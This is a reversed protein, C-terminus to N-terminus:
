SDLFDFLSMQRTQPSERVLTQERQVLHEPLESLFESPEKGTVFILEERARTMGVYFLRREEQIDVPAGDKRKILLPFAGKEMGPIIVAPFELGKAAHLTMLSVADATYYRGGCRKLDGEKGLLINELLEEMTKHFIAMSLLRSLPEDRSLGREEMWMKILDVPKKKSVLPRYKEQLSQFDDEARAKKFFETEGETEEERSYLSRFFAVAERVSEEELFSGRGTVTYPIGEKKLYEEMAEAQRNTRCLVAIDSFSRVTRGEAAGQEQADLMDIGGVMRNIERATFIGESRKGSAKVIRMRSGPGAMSVLSRKEGPNNSIVAAAGETITGSSRYNKHLSIVEAGPEDELFRSFCAPDSGRFGYISQDPDGIVFLEKGYRNWQCILEYQLPSIDQFEDVLLYTFRSCFSRAAEQDELLLCLAEILLDDFDFLGRSTLSEEYRSVANWLGTGPQLRCTDEEEKQSEKGFVLVRKIKERSILNLFETVSLKEKEEQLIEEALKELELPDALTYSIGAYKLLEGCISHFTGTQIRAFARRHPMEKQLRERLERAAQNTFTVATIESAKVRRKEILCQIRATLTKTKGTGPGAIVALRRCPLEAAKKQEENLSVTEAEKKGNKETKEAQASIKGSKGGAKAQKTVPKEPTGKGAGTREEPMDSTEFIGGFSLQGEPKEIEDPEFLRIIGYEGDFGPLRTVNGERLRRIGEAILYGSHRKIEEVPVERLISFETGLGDLMRQYEEQVRKGAASRGTSAAIVEPLPVLSEFPRGSSLVFGEERDALQDIRHSVGITMKKGCVPCIGASRDAESPSMCIHCKRHGDFHYKGEEPFFEITGALGEGTEIAKKMGEYSLSGSLLNAERGLKAPSHADSNSILQFRDLASLRWNMPPDSSLGTEVAHIYPTLEGFCDEVRDFGSFAGFMSFHPTWIHAPVFIGEPCIDLMIELLDHCSLGLIPRGDSHINGITELKASLRQAEELGPLILLSHVKRVKGDQKYISSIEGTIVFRTRDEEAGKEPNRVYEKKLRYLGDEALVLKEKLEQRWAPHTFDGTGLLRIGKRRAQFDLNEPTLDRSTARSYRSHIHLDAIYM